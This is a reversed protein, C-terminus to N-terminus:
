SQLEDCNFSRFLLKFYIQDIGDFIKLFDSLWVFHGGDGGNVGYERVSLEDAVVGRRMISVGKGSEEKKIPVLPDDIFWSCEM